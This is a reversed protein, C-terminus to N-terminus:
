SVIRRCASAYRQQVAPACTRVSPTANPCPRHGRPVPPTAAPCPLHARPCPPHRPPVRCTRVHAGLTYRQSVALACTPVPPTAAPCPLHARACWPHLTAVRCTRVHAGPTYRQSVALACMRVSPTANRCPPIATRRAARVLDRALGPSVSREEPPRARSGLSGGGSASSVPTTPRTASRSCSNRV